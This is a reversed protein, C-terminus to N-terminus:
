TKSYRLYGFWGSAIRLVDHDTYVLWYGTAFLCYFCIFCSKFVFLLGFCENFHTYGKDNIVRKHIYYSYTRRPPIIINVQVCMYHVIHVLLKYM